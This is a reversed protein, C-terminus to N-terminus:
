YPTKHPNNRWEEFIEDAKERLLREMPLRRQEMPMELERYLFSDDFGAGAAGERTGAYWIKDVRSWYLAALCMPCPECSSYVECGELVHTDLNRCAERLATIEAHATPDNERVVGNGGRGVIKGEKVVVAGFPGGLGDRMGERALRFAEEMFLEPSSHMNDGRGEMPRLTM